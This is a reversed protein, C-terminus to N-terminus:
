LKTLKGSAIVPGTPLGTPSGGLPEVSVALAAETGVLSLLDAPVNVRVPREGDILGLSRPASGPAILWLQLARQDINKVAAPVITMSAGGPDVTALFGTQGSADLTAVLPARSLPAAVYVLAALSAAAVAASGIACWRWFATSLGRAAPQGGLAAEIRSWTRAPPKVPRIEDALGGLRQEWFAVEAALAPERMLRREVDRRADADLVGLAYEAAIMDGDEGAITPDDSM